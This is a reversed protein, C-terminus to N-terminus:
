GSLRHLLNRYLFAVSLRLHNRILNEGGEIRKANDVAKLHERTTKVEELTKVHVPEIYEVWGHNLYDTETPNYIVIDGDLLATGESIIVGDKIYKKM